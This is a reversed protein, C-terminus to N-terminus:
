RPTVDVRNVDVTRDGKLAVREPPGLTRRREESMAAVASASLVIQGPQALRNLRAAMEVAAGFADQGYSTDSLQISGMHVGIRVRLPEEGGVIPHDALSTQLATAFAFAREADPFLIMAGDDGLRKVTQGGHTQVLGEATTFFRQIVERTSLDGFRVSLGTSGEIDTVVIAASKPAVGTQPPDAPRDDGTM